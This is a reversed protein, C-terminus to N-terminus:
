LLGMTSAESGNLLVGLEAELLKLESDVWERGAATLEAHEM